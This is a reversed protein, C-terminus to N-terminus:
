MRGHARAEWMEFLETLLEAAQDVAARDGTALLDLLLGRAAGLSLRAFRPAEERAIGGQVALETLPDLWAEVLGDLLPATHPRGQLAQGTLEFFLRGHVLTADTVRQWFRRGQEAPPLDADALLDDLVARQRAEVAQVVAVLLGEKSGFHYILMRHSTGVAAALSRLSIDGIGHRSLYDVVADLLRARAEGAQPTM